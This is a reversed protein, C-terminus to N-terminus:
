ARGRLGGEIPKGPQVYESMFGAEGTSINALPELWLTDNTRKPIRYFDVNTQDYGWTGELIQGVQYDSEEGRM